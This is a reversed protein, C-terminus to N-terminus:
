MFCRCFFLSHTMLDAEGKTDLGLTGVSSPMECYLAQAGPSFKPNGVRSAPIYGLEDPM